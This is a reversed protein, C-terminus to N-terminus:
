DVPLLDPIGVTIRGGVLRAPARNRDVLSVDNSIDTLLAM